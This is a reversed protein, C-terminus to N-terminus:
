TGFQRLYYLNQKTESEEMMGIKTWFTVKFQIVEQNFDKKHLLMRLGSGRRLNRKLRM